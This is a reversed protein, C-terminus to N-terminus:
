PAARGVNDICKNDLTEQVFTRMFCALIRQSEPQFQQAPNFLLWVVAVTPWGHGRAAKRPQQLENGLTNVVRAFARVASPNAVSSRIDFPRTSKPIPSPAVRRSSCPKPMGALCFRAIDSSDASCIAFM